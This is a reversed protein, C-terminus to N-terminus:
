PPVRRDRPNLPARTFSCGCNATSGDTDTFRTSSGNPSKVAFCMPRGRATTRSRSQCSGGAPMPRRSGTQLWGLPKRGAFRQAHCAQCDAARHAGQLPFSTRQHDFTAPKWGGVGHCDQCTTPFGLHDPASARTFNGEHCAVCERQAGAFVLKAHCSVCTTKAHAGSLGFGTDGHQFTLPQRLPKWADLTHCSDCGM